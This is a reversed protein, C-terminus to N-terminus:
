CLKFTPLWPGGFVVRMGLIHHQEDKFEAGASTSVDMDDASGAFGDAPSDEM